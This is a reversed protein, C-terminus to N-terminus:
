FWSKKHVRSFTVGRLFFYQVVRAATCIIESMGEAGGVSLAPDVARKSRGHHICDETQGNKRVQEQSSGM